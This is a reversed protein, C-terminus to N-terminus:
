RHCVGDREVNDHREEKATPLAFHFTTGEGVISNAWLRGGHAEVMSRCISLGLGMGNPKTTFFSDFARALVEPPMGPGADHIAVEIAGNEAKSTSITMDGSRSGNANMAEMSNRTLNLIIQQIEIKDAEVRPLRHSLDLNVQIHQERFEHSLLDIAERILGNMDVSMTRPQKKRVFGRIWSVIEGARLVEASLRDMAALVEDGAGEGSRLRRACGKAYLRIATLPQNLEHALGSAMEGMLSLRHTHALEAQLERTKQEAQKRESIEQVLGENLQAM